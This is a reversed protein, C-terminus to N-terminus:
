FRLPINSKKITDEGTIGYQHLLRSLGAESMENHLSPSFTVNAISEIDFKCKQYPILCGNYVRFQESFPIGLESNNRGEM